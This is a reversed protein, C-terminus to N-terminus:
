NINRNGFSNYRLIELFNKNKCVKYVLGDDDSWVAYVTTGPRILIPDSERISTSGSSESTSSSTPAQVEPDTQAYEFKVPPKFSRDQLIRIAAM